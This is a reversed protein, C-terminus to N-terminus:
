NVVARFGATDSSQDLGFKEHHIQKVIYMRRDAEALLQEADSGDESFFATGVSISLVDEGCVEKGAEIALQNLLQAKEESADRTLGPAVVIFEDGGM